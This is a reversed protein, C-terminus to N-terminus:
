ESKIVGLLNKPMIFFYDIYFIHENKKSRLKADLEEYYDEFIILCIGKVPLDVQCFFIILFFLGVVIKIEYNRM